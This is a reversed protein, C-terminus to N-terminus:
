PAVCSYDHISDDAKHPLKATALGHHTGGMMMSRVLVHAHPATRAAAMEAGPINRESVM